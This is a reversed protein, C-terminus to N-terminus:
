ITTLTVYCWCIHDKTPLASLCFPPLSAPVRRGHERSVSHHFFWFDAIHASLFASMVGTRLAKRLHSRRAHNCDTGVKEEESFTGSFEVHWSQWCSEPAEVIKIVTTQFRGVELTLHSGKGCPSVATDKRRLGKRQQRSYSESLSKPRWEAWWCQDSNCRREPVWRPRVQISAAEWLVNVVQPKSSAFHFLPCILPQPM